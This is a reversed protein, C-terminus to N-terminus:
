KASHVANLLDNAAKSRKNKGHKTEKHNYASHHRKAGKILSPASSLKSNSNINKSGPLKGEIFNDIYCRRTYTKRGLVIVPIHNKRCWARITRLDSFGLLSKLNPLELLDDM